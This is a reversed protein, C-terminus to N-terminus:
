EGQIDFGPRWAWTEGLRREGETLERTRLGPRRAHHVVRPRPTPVHRLVAEPTLSESFQIGARNGRVWIIRGAVALEGRRFRVEAGEVPLQAGEVLAGDASLNRLKVDLSQGSLELAATMLVNSRRQRRNQIM